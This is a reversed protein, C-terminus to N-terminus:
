RGQAMATLNKIERAKQFLWFCIAFRILPQYYKNCADIISSMWKAQYFDDTFAMSTCCAWVLLGGGLWNDFRKGNVLALGYCANGLTFGVTFLLFHVNSQYLRHQIEYKLFQLASIDTETVYRKRLGNIHWLTGLTREWETFVFLAFLLFGLIAIPRSIKAIVLAMGLMSILVLLCHFLIIWNLWLYASSKYLQVREEFSVQPINIQHIAITTFGTLLACIAAVYIYSKESRATTHNNPLVM